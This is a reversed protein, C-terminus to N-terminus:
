REAAQQQRYLDRLLLLGGAGLFLLAIFFGALSALVVTWWFGVPETAGSALGSLSAVVQGFVPIGLAAALSWSIWRLRLRARWAAWLLLLGGLLAIPFYEAPLLYDFRLEGGEILSLAAVLLPLLTPFWVLLTGFIALLNTLSNKPKM